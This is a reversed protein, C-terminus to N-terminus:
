SIEGTLRRFRIRKGDRAMVSHNEYSKYLRSASPWHQQWTFRDIIRSTACHSIWTDSAHLRARSTDQGKAARMQGQLAKNRLIHHPVSTVIKPVSNPAILKAPMESKAYVM